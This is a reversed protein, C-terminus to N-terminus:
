WAAPGTMILKLQLQFSLSFASASLQFSFASLTGAIWTLVLPNRVTGQFRSADCLQRAPCGPERRQEEM